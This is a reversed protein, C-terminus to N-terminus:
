LTIEPDKMVAGTPVASRSVGARVTILGADALAHLVRHATNLSAGLHDALERISPPYGNEAYYRQIYQMGADLRRRTTVPGRKPRDHDQPQEVTM